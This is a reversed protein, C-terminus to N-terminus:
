VRDLRPDQSLKSLLHRLGGDMMAAIDPRITAFMVGTLAEITPTARRLTQEGAPTLTFAIPMGRQSTTRALLGKEVLQRTLGGAAPPTIQLGRALDARNVGPHSAVFTLATFQGASVDHGTLARHMQREVLHGLKTVVCTLPEPAAATPRVTTMAGQAALRSM